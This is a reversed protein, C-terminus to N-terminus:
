VYLIIPLKNYWSVSSQKSKGVYFANTEIGLCVFVTNPYLMPKSESNYLIAIQLPRFVQSVLLLM